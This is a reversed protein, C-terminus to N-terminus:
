TPREIIELTDLPKQVDTAKWQGPKDHYRQEVHVTRGALRLLVGFRM